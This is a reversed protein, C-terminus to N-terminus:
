MGGAPASPRNRGRRSEGHRVIRGTTLHVVEEGVNAMLDGVRELDRSIRYMALATRFSIEGRESLSEIEAQVRADLRDLVEDRGVFLMAQAPDEDMVAKFLLHCTRPVREGLETLSTPWSPPRGPDMRLTLKAISAAHDAVREVHMNVKLCFTVFRVDRQDARSSSALDELLRVCGREIEIEEADVRDDRRRVEAAAAHDLRWLAELASELMDIAQHAERYLRRRLSSVRVAVTAEDDAGVTPPEDAAVLRFGPIGSSPTAKPQAGSVEPAPGERPEPGSGSSEESEKM